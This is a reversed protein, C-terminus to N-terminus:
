HPFSSTQERDDEHDAQSLLFSLGGAMAPHQADRSFVQQCDIPTELPEM